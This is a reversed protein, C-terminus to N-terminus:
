KRNRLATIAAKIAGLYGASEISITFKRYGYIYYYIRLLEHAILKMYKKLIFRPKTFEAHFQAAAIYEVPHSAGGLAGKNHQIYHHEIDSYFEAQSCINPYCALIKTKKSRGYENAIWSDYSLHSALWFWVNKESPLKGLIADYASDNVIYCHACLPGMIRATTVKGKPSKTEDIITAYRSYPTCGLFFIQWNPERTMTRAILEGIESFLDDHFDADDELILVHRWGKKKAFEICKRHSLICGARGGWFLSEEETSSKFLRGQRYGPLKKGWVASIRHLKDQPVNHLQAKISEWRDTRHDLNIICVGDIGAWFIGQKELQM